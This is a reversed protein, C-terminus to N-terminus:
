RRGIRVSHMRGWGNVTTSTSRTWMIMLTLGAVGMLLSLWQGRTLDFWQFGLHADPTRFFEDTIRILAYLIAFMAAIFGPKRPRRWLFFLILFLLLGEGFAAYLQSPHRLTLLPALADRVVTDGNQVDAVIKALTEQVHLRAAADTSSQSLWAAWQAGTVGAKEVVPKLSELKAFDQAPWQQIETPFKVALPFDAPAPRGLLEGNLFNAIRGFFIGLPSAVACLDFLYLLSLGTKRAFLACGVLVGLIGGHSSMGGENIALVGWFPFDSRFMWLLDPSYFLVYGLRGGILMGFSVYVILDGVQDLTLGARQRRALWAMVLYAFFIGLVYSFGYWRVGFDDTFRFLFPSLDNVM